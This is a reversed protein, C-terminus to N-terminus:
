WEVINDNSVNSQTAEKANERGASPVNEYEYHSKKQFQKRLSRKENGKKLVIVRKIKLM